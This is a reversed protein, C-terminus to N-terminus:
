TLFFIACFHRVVDDDDTAIKVQWRLQSALLIAQVQQNKKLMRSAHVSTKSCLADYHEESLGRTQYLATTISSLASLQARSDSISEEYVIFAQAFSEYAVDEMRATLAVSAANLYLRLAIESAEVRNYLTTITQLIFKFVLSLLSSHEADQIGDSM